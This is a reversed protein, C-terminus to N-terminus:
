HTNSRQEEGRVGSEVNCVEMADPSCQERHQPNGLKLSFHEPIERHRECGGTSQKRQRACGSEPGHKSLQDAAAPNAQPTDLDWAIEFGIV